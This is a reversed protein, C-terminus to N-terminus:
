EMNGETVESVTMVATVPRDLETYEPNNYQLSVTYRGPLLERIGQEHMWATVDLSAELSGASLTSM